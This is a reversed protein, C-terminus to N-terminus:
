KVFFWENKSSIDSNFRYGEEQFLQLDAPHTIQQLIAFRAMMGRAKKANFSVFQLQGKRFERFQPTIVGGKLLSPQVASYYEQSALNILTEEGSEGLSKELALTLTTDWFEYLNKKGEVPLSTGMELRYPQILDLPRLLGYLGSLIRLHRQAFELSATDFTEARLGLYVDGKFALIAQKAAPMQFSDSFEQFRKYNLLSLKESIDMMKGISAVDHRQLTSILQQVQTPFLIHSHATYPHSSFDLTKAPSLIIIM